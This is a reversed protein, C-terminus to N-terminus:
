QVNTTLTWYGTGRGNPNFNIDNSRVHTKGDENVWDYTYASNTKYVQGTTPDYRKQVGLAYDCWDDAMRQQANMGEIARRNSRDYGQQMAAMLEEHRQFSLDMGNRFAVGNAVIQGVLRATQQATLQGRGQYWAPNIKPWSASQSMAKGEPAWILEVYASCIHNPVNRMPPLYARFDCIIHVMLVEDERISNIKFRTLARAIDSTSHRGLMHPNRDAEGTLDQVYDVGLLRVMYQLFDAARIPGNYPPCDSKPGPEYPANSSWAWDFRPLEKHGTLGDASSARYFHSVVNSCSSGQVLGGQFVWDSPLMMRSYDLGVIPDFIRVMKTGTAPGSDPAVAGASLERRRADYEQQRLLGNRYAENRPPPPSQDEGRGANSNASALAARKAACEDPSLVGSSCADELARLKQAEPGSAANGQRRATQNSNGARPMGASGNRLRFSRVIGDLVPKISSYESSFSSTNCILIEANTTAVAVTMIATGHQPDNCAVQLYLGPQGALTADGRLLLEAEPCEQLLQKEISDLVERPPPTSGDASPAVELSVSVNGKSITVESSEQHKEAHWGAPVDVTFNGGPDRYMTQASACVAFLLFCTIAM